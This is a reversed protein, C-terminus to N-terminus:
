LLNPGTDFMYVEMTPLQHQRTTQGIWTLSPRPENAVSNGPFPQPLQKLLTVLHPTPKFPPEPNAAYAAPADTPIQPALSARMPVMSEIKFSDGLLASVLTMNELM